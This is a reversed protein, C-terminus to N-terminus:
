VHKVRASHLLAPSAAHRMLIDQIVFPVSGRSPPPRSRRETDEATFDEGPKVLLTMGSGGAVMPCVLGDTCRAPQRRPPPHVSSM